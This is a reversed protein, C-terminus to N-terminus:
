RDRRTLRAAHTQRHRALSPNRETRQAQYAPSQMAPNSPLMRLSTLSVGMGLLMYYWTQISLWISVSITGLAFVAIAIAMGRMLRRDITAIGETTMALRYVVCATLIAVLVAPIIGFQISLVLWYNDVSSIFMWEPRDWDEYGIGFWPKALVNQSGYKWILTRHYANGADLAAFRSLLRFTGSQTGLELALIVGAGAMLAVYWSLKHFIRTAWDYLILAVYAFLALIAVSSLSFFSAISAGLGFLRPWGRFGAMWYLPLLTSLFLGALISHPFPGAARLFLFRTEWRLEVDRGTILAAAEQLWFTKTVAELFIIAGIVAFGPAMLLFFVRVDNFSRFATRAVFYSLGVDTTQAVVATFAEFTETTVFLSLDIWFVTAFVIADLWNLRVQGRWVSVIVWIAAPILFFRYPAIVSSGILANFQPPALLLYGLLTIAYIRFTDSRPMLRARKPSPMATVSPATAM